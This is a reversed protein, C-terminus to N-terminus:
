TYTKEDSELKGQFYSSVVLGEIFAALDKRVSLPCDPAHRADVGISAERTETAGSALTVTYPITIVWKKQITPKKPMPDSETQVVRPYQLAPGGTRDVWEARLPSAPAPRFVGEPAFTKTVAAGNPLALATQSPM